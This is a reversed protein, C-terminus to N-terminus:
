LPRAGRRPWAAPRMDGLRGARILELSV